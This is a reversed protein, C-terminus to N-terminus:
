TETEPLSVPQWQLCGYQTATRVTVAGEAGGGKSKQRLRIELKGRNVYEIRTKIKKALTYYGDGLREGDDTRDEFSNPYAAVAKRAVTRSQNFDPNPCCKKMEDVLFKIVTNKDTPSLRKNAKVLSLVTPSLQEWQIVFKSAWDPDTCLSVQSSSRARARATSTSAEGPLEEEVHSARRGDSFM